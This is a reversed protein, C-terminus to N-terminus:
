RGYRKMFQEGYISHSIEGGNGNPANQPTEQPEAPAEEVVTTQKVVDEVSVGALLEDIFGAM